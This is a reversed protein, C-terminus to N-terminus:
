YPKNTANRRETELRYASLVAANILEKLGVPFSIINKFKIQKSIPDRWSSYPTQVSLPGGNQQQVRFDKITIGDLKLDVFALTTGKDVLHVAQVEIKSEPV